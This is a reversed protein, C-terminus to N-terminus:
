ERESSSTLSPVEESPKRSPSINGASLFQEEVAPERNQTTQVANQQVLESGHSVKFAFFEMGDFGRDTLWIASSAQADPSMWEERCEFRYIM